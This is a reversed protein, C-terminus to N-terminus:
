ETNREGLMARLRTRAVHLLWKVTGPALSLDAVMDKESRELFYRQVLVARQRPSLMQLADLIEQQRELSEVEDEATKGDGPFNELWAEDAESGLWVKKARKQAAKIAANVVSRMFWPEFPRTSDFHDITSLLRLFCDQVVDEALSLDRTILNAARLAKVQYQLVLFELGDMNGQKLWQIATQEDM